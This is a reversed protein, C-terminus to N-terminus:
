PTWHGANDRGAEAAEPRDAPHMDQVQVSVSPDRESLPATRGPLHAELYAWAGSTADGEDLGQNPFGEVRDLYPQTWTGRYLRIGDREANPGRGMDLGWWHGEIDDSEGRRQYGRELCSSVPDCRAAKGSDSSPSRVMLLAASASLMKPRAGTVRFGASKLRRELSLFQALGGSGPEIEIGVVVRRGDVRAQQVILDDRAGPTRKFTRVHEIARVGFINRSMLVGCTNCADARESAALDWWRVSVKENDPWADEVPDLLAGFWEARFYDGPERAGWDGNLLQERVTPHLRMLTKIYSDRDLHVNDTIRAPLYEGVPEISDGTDPDIGGGVFRAKVWAHGESGPNSASLARLPIKSGEPRRLRSLAIWEYASADPWHTLEDFAALQYAAGQFNEDDRSHGHHTLEVTAGSPFTFKKDTGNWHVGNNKNWWKMARPLLGDAKTLQQYTRRVVVGSFEPYQWAYQAAAMLLWSSKGGGAAGGYLLEYIAKPDHAALTQHKGLGIAQAPLPMQPIFPNGVIHPCMQEIFALRQASVRDHAARRQEREDIM